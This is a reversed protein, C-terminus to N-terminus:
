EFTLWIKNDKDSCGERSIRPGCVQDCLKSYNAYIDVQSQIVSNVCLYVLLINNRLTLLTFIWTKSNELHFNLIWYKRDISVKAWDILIILFIIRSDWSSEIAIRNRSSWDFLANLRYFPVRSWDFSSFSFKRCFKRTVTRFTQLPKM